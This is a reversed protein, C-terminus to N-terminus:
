GSDRMKPEIHRYVKMTVMVQRIAKEVKPDDAWKGFGAAHVYGFQDRWIVLADRDPPIYDYQKGKVWRITLGRKAKM